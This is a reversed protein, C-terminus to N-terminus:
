PKECLYIPIDELGLRRAERAGLEAYIRYPKVAFGANRLKDPFDRGYLRIHDFQWFARTRAEKTVISKDEYTVERGYDIPVDIIAFGGRRMVRYIESMAKRDDEIHELVHSCFVVDFAADDFTLNTLDERHLARGEVIDASAYNINAYKRWIGEYFQEPAFHLLDIRAEGPLVKDLYLYFARHRPQSKCTPCTSNKYIHGYGCDVDAFRSGSWGCIVCSVKGFAMMRMLDCLKQM